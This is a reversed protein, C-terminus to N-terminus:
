VGAEETVAVVGAAILRRVEDETFGGGRLVAVSDEGAAHTAGPALGPTRSFRPAIRPLRGEAYPVFTSREALQPHHPAEALSLVPAVCADVGEFIAAWEDRTRTLFTRTLAARMAPWAARDHQVFDLRTRRMLEAFFQPEIAGVAVFRGDACAYTDYYPTGGDLLNAERRDEWRGVAHNGYVMTMLSSVGDVMAADVVQGRGSRTREHLAALIGAVLFMAGGGFDAVLNLATRPKEAGGTAHLAGTLAAYTIDHGARPALPGEQGWGTMRGYVLGPSVALCEDPGLGLREMVGPRNGEVVVDIDRLLRLVVDRGPASKLDVALHSRSRGLVSRAPSGVAAPRDIRIVEAGLEALMLCAFPGPGIGAFELVRLGALPGAATSM